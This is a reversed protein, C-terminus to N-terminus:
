RYRHDLWEQSQPTEETEQHYEWNKPIIESIDYSVTSTGQHQDLNRGITMPSVPVTVQLTTKTVVTHAFIIPNVQIPLHMTCKHTTCGKTCFNNKQHDKRYHDNEGCASYHVQPRGTHTDRLAFVSRGTGSTSPCPQTNVQVNQSSKVKGGKNRTQQPMTETTGMFIPSTRTGQNRFSVDGPYFMLNNGTQSPIGTSVVQTKSPCNSHLVDHARTSQVSRASAMWM